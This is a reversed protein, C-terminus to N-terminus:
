VARLALVLFSGQHKELHSQKLGFFGSFGGSSRSIFLRLNATTGSPVLASCDPFLVVFHNVM